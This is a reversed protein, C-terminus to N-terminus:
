SGVAPCGIGRWLKGTLRSGPTPTIRSFSPPRATEGRFTFYFCSVRFRTHTHTHTHTHARAHKKQIKGVGKSRLAVEHNHNVRRLM